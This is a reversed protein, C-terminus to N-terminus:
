ALASCQSYQQFMNVNFDMIFLSWSLLFIVYDNLLLFFDLGSWKFAFVDGAIVVKKELYTTLVTQQPLLLSCM